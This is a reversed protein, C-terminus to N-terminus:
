EVDKWRRELMAVQMVSGGNMVGTSAEAAQRDYVHGQLMWENAHGYGGYANGVTYSHGQTADVMGGMNKYFTGQMGLMNAQMAALKQQNLIQECVAITQVWVQHRQEGQALFGELDGTQCANTYLARMRPSFLDCMREKGEADAEGKLFFRNELATGQAFTLYCEECIAAVGWGWFRRGASKVLKSGQCPPVTGFRMAFDGLPKWDGKLLSESYLALYRPAKSHNLNFNCLYTEHKSMGKKPVFFKTGGLVQVIGAYCGGCVGFGPADNPLTYWTAGKIGKADCFPQKDIGEIATWFVDYNKKEVSYQTPIIINLHGMVCMTDFNGGAVQELMTENPTGHFYDYYCAVCVQLAAPGHKAKYWARSNANVATQKPCAPLQIRLKVGESFAIWNENSANVHEEHLRRVHWASSDCFAGGPVTELQFHSAVATGALSFEFCAKCMTMGPIEPSTYWTEGEIVSAQPCEALTQAHKFFTVVTDLNGSSVAEPWLRNKVRRSGFLCRRPKKDTFFQKTFINRYQTDWIYGVYCRPCILFSPADPHFFWHSDFSIPDSACESLPSAGSPHPQPPPPPARSRPPPIPPQSTSSPPSTYPHTPQSAQTPPPPFYPQSPNQSPPPPLYTQQQEQPPQEHFPNTSPKYGPQTAPPSSHNQQYVPSSASTSHEGPSLAERPRGAGVVVGPQAMSLPRPPLAPQRGEGMVPPPYYISSAPRPPLVPPPRTELNIRQMQQKRMVEDARRKEEEAEAQLRNLEEDGRRQEEEAEQRYQAALTEALRRDAAAQQQAAAREAELQQRLQALHQDAQQLAARQEEKAQALAQDAIAPTYRPQPPHYPPPPHQQQQWQSPTSASSSPTTPQQPSYPQQQQPQGCQTGYTQRNNYQTHQGYQEHQQQQQQQQEQKARQYEQNAQQVIEGAKSM